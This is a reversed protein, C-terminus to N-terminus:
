SEAGPRGGGSSAGTSPAGSWAPGTRAPGTRRPGSVTVRTVGPVSEALRIAEQQHKPDEDDGWLHVVGAQVRILWRHPFGAMELRHHVGELIADDSRAMTEVVDRRTVVGVVRQGEVVPMSRRRGTVMSKALATLTAEPRVFEVPTTMVEEATSRPEDLPVGRPHLGFRERILDAESVLGVLRGDADTVPVATFGNESLIAAVEGLPTTPRVCVAPATMIDKARM